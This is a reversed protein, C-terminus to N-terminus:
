RMQSMGLNDGSFMSNRPDRLNDRIKKDLSEAVMEAADGRSSRIVPIAGVVTHLVFSDLQNHISSYKRTYIGLYIGM